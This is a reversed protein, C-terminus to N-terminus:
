KIALRINEVLKKPHFPLVIKVPNTQYKQDKLDSCSKDALKVNGSELLYCKSKVLKDLDSILFEVKQGAISLREGIIELTLKPKNDNLFDPNTVSLISLLTDKAILTKYNIAYQTQINIRLIEPGVLLFPIFVILLIILIPLDLIGKM